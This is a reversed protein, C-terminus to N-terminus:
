SSSGSPAIAFLAEGKRVVVGNQGYVAVIQGGVRAKVHNMLKMVEVICVTSAADVIDGVDAFPPSGPEPSRWMIGPTPAVVVHAGPPPAPSETSPADPRVDAVPASPSVPASTPGSTVHDAPAVTSLHVRLDGSRVDIESWESREFAEVVRKIADQSRSVATGRGDGHWAPIM